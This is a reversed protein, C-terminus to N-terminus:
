AKSKTSTLELYTDLLAKTEPDNAAILRLLEIDQFQRKKEDLQVRIKEAEKARVKREVYASTDVTDVIWSKATVADTNVNTVVGVHMHPEENSDEYVVYAGLDVSLDTYCLCKRNSSVHKVEVVKCGFMIPEEKYIKKTVNELVHKTARYKNNKAFPDIHVHELIACVKVLMLGKSTEVVLKDGPEVPMPTFYHFSGGSSLPTVKIKFWEM